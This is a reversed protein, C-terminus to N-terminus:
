GLLTNININDLEWYPILLLPIQHLECYEKKILDSIRVDTWGLPPDQYHFEGQYEILKILKDQSYIGFDFRLLGGNEGHLDDFSVEQKFTIKNLRLIESIKQEGFSKICGCSKTRKSTLNNWRVSIINGCQCQCKVYTGDNKKVDKELIKLRGFTQGIFSENFNTRENFNNKQYTKSLRNELIAFHQKCKLTKGARLDTGLIEKVNGCSCQCKWYIAKSSSVRDSKELVTWEGFKQGTLDILKRGM